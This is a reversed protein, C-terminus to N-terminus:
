EIGKDDRENKRRRRMLVVGIPLGGISGGVIMYTLSSRGGGSLLVTSNTVNTDLSYNVILKVHSLAFSVGTNDLFTKNNIDSSLRLIFRTIGDKSLYSVGVPNFSVNYEKDVTYSTSNFEGGYVTYNGYYYDFPIVPNHPSVESPDFMVSFNYDLGGGYDTYSIVANLCVSDITADDPISSTNFLLAGRYTYNVYFPTADSYRFQQVGVGGPYIDGRRSNRTVWLPSVESTNGMTQGEWVTPFFVNTFNVEGFGGSGNGTYNAWVNWDTGNWHSQHTGVANIINEFLSLGNLGTYNAWVKWGTLPNYVSNHTGTANVINEFLTLTRVKSMVIFQNFGSRVYSLNRDYGDKLLTITLNDYGSKNVRVTLPFHYTSWGAPSGKTFYAYLVGGGSKRLEMISVNRESIIGSVDSLAYWMRVGTRNYVSVNANSLVSGSSNVVNAKFTMGIRLYRAFATSSSDFRARYGNPTNLLDLNYIITYIDNTIGYDRIYVADTYTSQEEIVINKCTLANAWSNSSSPTMPWLNFSNSGIIRLGNLVNTNSAYCIGYRGGIRTCNDYIVYTNGSNDIDLSNDFVCNRYKTYKSSISTGGYAGKCSSFVISNLLAGNFYIMGSEEFCYNNFTFVGGNMYKMGSYASQNKTYDGLQVTTRYTSSGATQSYFHTGIGGQDLCNQIFTFGNDKFNGNAFWFCVPFVFVQRNGALQYPSPDDLYMHVNDIFLQCGDVLDDFLFQMSYVMSWYGRDRRKLDMDNRISLTFDTWVYPDIRENLVNSVTGYSYLASFTSGSGYYNNIMVGKLLAPDGEERPSYYVSFNIQEADSAYFYTSTYAGGYRAETNNFNWRTNFYLSVTGSTETAYQGKYTKYLLTDKDLSDWLTLQTATRRYVIYVGNFNTTGEVIVTQAAVFNTTPCTVVITGDGAAKVISTLSVTIPGSYSLNFGVSTNGFTKITPENYKTASFNSPISWNQANRDSVESFKNFPFRLSHIPNLKFYDIVDRFVMVDTGTTSGSIYNQGSSAIAFSYSKAGMCSFSFIMMTGLLVLMFFGVLLLRKTNM